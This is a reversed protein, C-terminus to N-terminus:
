KEAPVSRQKLGQRSYRRAVHMGKVSAPDKKTKIDFMTTRPANLGRIRYKVKTEMWLDRFYWIKSLYAKSVFSGM